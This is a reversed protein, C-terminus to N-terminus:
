RLDREVRKFINVQEPSLVIPALTGERYFLLSNRKELKFDLVEDIPKSIFFSETYDRQAIKLKWQPETMIKELEGSQTETLKDLVMYSKISQLDNILRNIKKNDLPRDMEDQWIDSVKLARLQPKQFPAASIEIMSILDSNLALAKSDLLEDPTVAELALTLATSQYIWDHGEIIFYTSNDIPNILGFSIAVPAGKITEFVLSFLPKDLSFSQINIPDARHTHRVQVEDLTKMVKLFFDKRARINTPETMQWPGDLDFDPHSNEFKFNGMKNTFTLRKLSKLREMPIPNQILQVLDQPNPPAQFVEAFFAVSGLIFAFGFIAFTSWHVKIM